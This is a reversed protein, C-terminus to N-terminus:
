ISIPMCEGCVGMCSGSNYYFNHHHHNDHGGFDKLNSYSSQSVKARICSYPHTRIYDAM